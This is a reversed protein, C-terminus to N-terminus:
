ECAKELLQKCVFITDSTSRDDRFGCQSDPLIKEALHHNFRTAMVKAFIKGAVDLLSLGRYNSCSAKEGKKKYLTTVVARLWQKPVEGSHWCRHFISLLARCLDEDGCKYIERPIGDPGQAKGNKLSDIAKKVEELTPLADMGIVIPLQPLEDLITPDTPNSSNM